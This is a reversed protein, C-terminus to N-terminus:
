FRPCWIHEMRVEANGERRRKEDEEEEDEDDDYEKLLLNYRRQSLLGGHQVHFNHLFYDNELEWLPIEWERPVFNGLLTSCSCPTVGLELLVDHCSVAIFLWKGLFLNMADQKFRDTFANNYYRRVTTLIEKHKNLATGAKGCPTSLPSLVTCDIGCCEIYVVGLVQM